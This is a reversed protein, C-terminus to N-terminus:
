NSTKTDFLSNKALQAESAIAKSTFSPSSVVTSENQWWQASFILICNLLFLITDDFGFSGIMNMPTGAEFHHSFTTLVHEFLMIKKLEFLSWSSHCSFCGPCVPFVSLM